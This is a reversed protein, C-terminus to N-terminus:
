IRHKSTELTIRSGFEITWTCIKRGVQCGDSYTTLCQCFRCSIFQRAQDQNHSMPNHWGLFDELSYRSENWKDKIPGNSICGTQPNFVEATEVLFANNEKAFFARYIRGCLVFPRCFFPILKEGAEHLLRQNIRVRIFRMSGFRRTFRCSPGLEAPELM